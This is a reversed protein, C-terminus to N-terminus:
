FSGCLHRVMYKGKYISVFILGESLFIKSVGEGKAYQNLLQPFNLWRNDKKCDCALVVPRNWRTKM